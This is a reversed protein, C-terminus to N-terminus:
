GLGCCFDLKRLFLSLGSFLILIKLAFDYLFNFVKGFSGSIAVYLGSSHLKKV